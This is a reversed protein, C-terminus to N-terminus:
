AWLLHPWPGLDDRGSLPALVSTLDVEGAIDMKLLDVQGIGARDLVNDIPSATVDFQRHPNGTAEAGILGFNGSENAGREYEHGAPLRQILGAAPDIWWPTSQLQEDTM